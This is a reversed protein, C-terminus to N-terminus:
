NYIYIYIYLTMLINAIKRLVVSILWDENGLSRTAPLSPKLSM